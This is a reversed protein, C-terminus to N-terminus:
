EVINVEATELLSQNMDRTNCFIGLTKLPQWRSRAAGHLMVAVYLPTFLTAPYPKTALTAYRQAPVYVTAVSWGGM